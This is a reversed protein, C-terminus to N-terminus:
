MVKCYGTKGDPFVVEHPECDTSFFAFVAGLDLDDNNNLCTETNSSEAILKLMQEIEPM